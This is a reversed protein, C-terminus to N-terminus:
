SDTQRGELGGPRVCQAARVSERCQVHRNSDHGDGTAGATSKRVIDNGWEVGLLAQGSRSPQPMRFTGSNPLRGILAYCSNGVVLAVRGDALVVTPTAVLRRNWLRLRDQGATPINKVTRYRCSGLALARASAAKLRLNGYRRGQEIIGLCARYGQEPQPRSEMIRSVLKGTEPGVTEAWRVVLLALAGRRCQRRQPDVAFM